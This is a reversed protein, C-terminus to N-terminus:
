TSGHTPPRLMTLELTPSKCAEVVDKMMDNQDKSRVPTGNIAIICCGCEVMREPHAKNWDALAGQVHVDVVQLSDEGPKHGIRFGLRGGQTDLRVRFEPGVVEQDEEKSNPAAKGLAGEPAKDAESLKAQVTDGAEQSSYAPPPPIEGVATTEHEAMILTESNAVPNQSVEVMTASGVDAECCCQGGM